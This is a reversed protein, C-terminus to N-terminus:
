APLAGAAAARLRDSVILADLAAIDQLAPPGGRAGVGRQPHPRPRRRHGARSAPACASRPGPRRVAGRHGAGPAHQRGGPVAELRAHAGMSVHDERGASSPISDVCAPHCLIKNESVLAAATVQALMFGSHLGSSVALFPPLGSLAPNVCQEIRRESIAGLEALAIAAVDLALAVPQGHFNGGSLIDAPRGPEVFVLPNDTAANMERELMAAAFALGDRAAGHVQPMCRFSYADQVKHCDRHSEVIASHATLRRLHAAAAVAGPHPRM